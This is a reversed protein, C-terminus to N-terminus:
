RSGSKKSKVLLVAFGALAAMLLTIWLAPNSSDGTPPVTAGPTNNGSGPTPTPTEDDESDDLNVVFSTGASGDTWVIEFTHSGESLTELYEPKLTVITSGEAVTYNKSDIVVGDVKVNQFQSYEGNGRIILSGTRDQEWTSDVGDIIKYKFPDPTPTPVGPTPTPVVPTPTPVEPTPTPTPVVPTPTPVEPTPTPAGPTPTPVAPTPTPVVPTPTPAAEHYLEVEGTLAAYNGDTPTFRWKYTKNAEVKTTGPLVNGQNDIWELTGAAPTITSGTLTLGADALTKGDATIKTYKPEGTSAAQNVKVSIWGTTEEYTQTDDPIFRFQPAQYGAPLIEDPNFWEFTGPIEEGTDRDKMKGSVTIIGLADGYTIEAPSLTLEGDVQPVIKNTARVNVTLTIDNYNDTKVQVTIAGVDGTASGATTVDLTLERNDSSIAATGVYGNTLSVTGVTYSCNGYEAPATLAPLAPLTVTYSKATGGLIVLEAAAPDAVTAKEIVGDTLVYTDAGEAFTYNRAIGYNDLKVTLTIKKNEGVAATDYAAFALYNYYFVLNEGAVEGDLTVDSVLAETKGDYTKEKIVVVSGKNITVERPTIDATVSEPQATLIYNGAKAGSLSYGRFTVTWGTGANKDEFEAKGSAVAVKGVDGSVLGEIVPTGTVEADTTGDYTKNKATLGSVTVSKPEITFTWTSDSIDTKAGYGDGAAVNIKVMYTGADTVSTVFKGNEDTIPNGDEGCYIVTVAGVGSKATTVEASRGIGDYTQNGTVNFDFDAATLSDDWAVTFKWGEATLGAAANYNMSEAVDIRVTYTGANIPAAERGNEDYYKVTIYSVDVKDSSFAASKETGSYVLDAPATFTFDDATLDAKKIEYTVSAIAPNNDEGTLTIVAKYNGANRPNEDAGMPVFGNDSAAQYSISITDAAPGQWDDGAKVTATKDQGDYVLEGGSPNAPAEITVSGGDAGCENCEATIVAGNATYNWSCEHTKVALYLNDGNKTIQYGTGADAFFVKADSNTVTYSGDSAAVQVPSNADAPLYEAAKSVGISGAGGTLEGSITILGLSGSQSPLYVNNATGKAGQVYVGDQLEGNLWNDYIKATGSVIMKNKNNPYVYVGGGYGKLANDDTVSNGTIVGGAMIFDGYMCVGAGTDDGTNGSIRANESMTFTSNATNAVGGQNNGSIVANGSMTFESYKGVYVGGGYKATNTDDAGTGGIVGGTMEFTSGKGVSAIETGYICVGGGYGNPAANGSIVVNGSMTFKATFSLFVGGGGRLYNNADGGNIEAKNGSIRGDTMTIEAHPNAYVGGGSGATTNNSIAGGNMTFSGGGGNLNNTDGNVFVGGGNKNATNGSIEGDNMTFDANTNVFVGGGSGTATNGSITGGNMTFSGGDGDQTTTDGNVYVGGGNTDVTNDSIEGDYMTFSSNTDMYVSGGYYSADYNGRIAGGYMTFAGSTVHVGAGCNGTTNGCITGGYMVFKGNSVFIGFGGGDKSHTIVGGTVEIDGATDPEWLNGKDVNATFKHKGGDGNCDTLTFTHESNDVVIAGNIATSANAPQATISHGNLCLTLDDDLVVAASLTVDQTLYYTGRTPLKNASTWKNFTTKDDCKHGGVEHHDMGCICHTHQEAVTMPASMAESIAYLHEMDLEAIQEETLSEIAEDIAELQASVSEANEVTVTEPLADILAQVKQVAAKKEDDASTDQTGADSDSVSDVTPKVTDPVEGATTSKDAPTEEGLAAAAEAEKQEAAPVAVQQEEPEAAPAAEQQEEQETVADAEQLAEQAFATMPLTSFCLIFALLM